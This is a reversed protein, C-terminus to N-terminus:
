INRTSWMAEADALERSGDDHEHDLGVVPVINRASRPVQPYHPDKDSHFESPSMITSTWPRLRLKAFHFSSQGVSVKAM